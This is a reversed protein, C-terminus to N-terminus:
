LLLFFHVPSIFSLCRSWKKIRRKKKKVLRGKRRFSSGQLVSVHCWGGREMQLRWGGTQRSHKVWSWSGGVGYDCVLFAEWGRVEAVCSSWSDCLTIFVFMGTKCRVANLRCYVGYRLIHIRHLSSLVIMEHVNNESFFNHPFVTTAMQYQCKVHAICLSHWWSDTECLGASSVGAFVVNHVTKSFKSNQREREFDVCVVFLQCQHFPVINKEKRYLEYLFLFNFNSRHYCRKKQNKKNGNWKACLYHSNLYLTLSLTYILFREYFINNMKSWLFRLLVFYLVAIVYLLLGENKYM